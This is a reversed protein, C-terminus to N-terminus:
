KRFRISVGAPVEDSEAMKSLTEYTYEWHYTDGDVRTANHEVVEFPLTIEFAVRLNEFLTAGMGGMDAMAMEPRSGLKELPNIPPTTLLMTDGEDTFILAGFADDIMEDPNDEVTEAEDDGSLDIESLKAIHDFSFRVKMLAQLGENTIEVGLLEIGEPLGQEIEEENIREFPNPSADKQALMQQRAAELEADTPSSKDGSFAKQMSAMMYAMPEMDVGITFQATGSLDRELVVSQEIEFCGLSFLLLLPLVRPAIRTRM